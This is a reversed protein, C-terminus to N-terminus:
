VTFFFFFDKLWPYYYSMYNEHAEEHAKSMLRAWIFGLIRSNRMLQSMYQFTLIKKTCFQHHSKERTRFIESEKILKDALTRFWITRITILKGNTIRFKPRKTSTHTTTTTTTTTTTQPPSTIPTWIKFELSLTINYRLDYDWWSQQFHKNLCGLCQM